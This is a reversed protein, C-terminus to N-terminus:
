FPSLTFGKEMLRKRADESIQQYSMCLVLTELNPLAVLQVIGNETMRGKKSRCLGTKPNGGIRLKKLTRMNAIYTLGRDDISNCDRLNLEVLSLTQLIALCKNTIKSEALSLFTLSPIQSISSVSKTTIKGKKGGLDLYTLPLQTLPQFGKDSIKEHGFFKLITLSPSLNCITRLGRNSIKKLFSINLGVLNPFCTLIRTLETSNMAEETKEDIDTLSLHQVNPFTFIQSKRKQSYEEFTMPRGDSYIRESTSKTEYVIKYRFAEFAEDEPIGQLGSRPYGKKHPQPAITQSSRDERKKPPIPPHTHPKIQTLCLSKIAANMLRHIQRLFARNKGDLFPLLPSLVNPHFLPHPHEITMPREKVYPEYSVLFIYIM